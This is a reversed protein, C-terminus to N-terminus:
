LRKAATRFNGSTWEGTAHDLVAGESRPFFEYWSGRGALDREVQLPFRESTTVLERIPVREVAALVEASFGAGLREEASKTADALAVSAARL